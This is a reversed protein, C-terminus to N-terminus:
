QNENESSRCKWCLGSIQLNLDGISFHIAAASQKLAPMVEQLDTELVSGCSSCVWHVHRPHGFIHEFMDRAQSRMSHQILGSELLLPLTRYVTARSVDQSLKRIREYLGEADFHGHLAFVSELILKRTSTLKLGKRSLFGSFILEYDQM